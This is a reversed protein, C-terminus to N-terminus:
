PQLGIAGLTIEMEKMHVKKKGRFLSHIILSWPNTNKM